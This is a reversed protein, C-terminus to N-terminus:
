TTPCEVLLLSRGQLFGVLGVVDMSAVHLPLGWRRGGDWGHPVGTRRGGTSAASFRHGRGAWLSWSCARGSVGSLPQWVPSAGWLRRGPFWHDRWFVPHCGKGWTDPVEPERWGVCCTCRNPISPIFCVTTERFLFFLVFDPDTCLGPYVGCGEWLDRFPTGVSLRTGGWRVETFFFM